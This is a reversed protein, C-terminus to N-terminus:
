ATKQNLTYQNKLAFSWNNRPSNGRMPNKLFRILDGAKIDDFQNTKKM